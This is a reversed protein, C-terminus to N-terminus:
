RVRRGKWEYPGMQGLLGAMLTYLIHFPQAAPFWVLIRRMGFFGAVPWLFPLEVATKGLLLWGATYLLLPDHLLGAVALMGILLGLLLRRRGILFHARRESEGESM